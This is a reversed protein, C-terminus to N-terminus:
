KTPLYKEIIPSANFEAELATIFTFVGSLKRAILAFEKPPSTFGETIIAKAGVKGVRKLLQSGQWNYEGRKTLAFSPTDTHDTKFPEMLLICFDAFSDQVSLVSDSQLCGLQTAGQIVGDRDALHAALITRQLAKQFSQSLERVAGFDLLVLKDPQGKDGRFQIRYNGFNPDTQMLGWEFVEVFFNELMAVALANRRTQSLRAVRKDTVVAGAIYDMTLVSSTSYEEVISPVIYRPDGDLLKAVRATMEAERIYDVEEVLMSKIDQLWDEFEKGNPVWRAFKLMQLVTAFDSEITAAVGPYQVKVCLSHESGTLTARHVQSLSAAAIATKEIALDVLGDGLEQQLAAHITSWDMAETQHELERLASTVEQPLLHDGYMAMIQGIKVYAGKLEGLKRTFSEAEKAISESRIAAKEEANKFVSGAHTGLIRAGSSAGAIAVSLRRQLANQKLKKLPPKTKM